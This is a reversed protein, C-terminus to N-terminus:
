DLTIAFTGKVRKLSSSHTKNKCINCITQKVIQKQNGFEARASVYYDNNWIEMIGKGYVNGFDARPSDVICCPSINGDWNIVMGSWPWHCQSDSDYGDYSDYIYEKNKPLWSKSSGSNPDVQIKDIRYKDVGLEIAMKEFDNIQHENHSMALMSVEIQPFEVATHQKIEVAQKTNKLVLSLDGKQRYKEYVDQTLGDLDIHLLALGSGILSELFGQKYNRSFNTSLCTWIGKSSAYEIMSPLESVLTSEGWNQFFIEMASDQIQDVINKFRNLKMIGKARTKVGRGTPCLPCGLNCANTPEVVLHYPKSKLHIKKGREESRSLIYNNLKVENIFQHPIHEIYQKDDPPIHKILDDIDKM